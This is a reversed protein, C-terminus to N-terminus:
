KVGQLYVDGIHQGILKWAELPQGDDIHEYIRLVTPLNSITTQRSVLHAAGNRFTIRPVTVHVKAENIRATYATQQDLVKVQHKIKM